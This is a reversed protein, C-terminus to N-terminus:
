GKRNVNAAINPQNCRVPHNFHHLLVTRNKQKHIATHQAHLAVRQNDRVYRTAIRKLLLGAKGQQEFWDLHTYLAVRSQQLQDRKLAAEGNSTHQLHPPTTTSNAPRFSDYDRGALSQVRGGTTAACEGCTPQRCKAIVKPRRDHRAGSGNNNAAMSSAVRIRKSNSNAAELSINIKRRKENTAFARNARVGSQAVTKLLSHRGYVPKDGRFLVFINPVARM